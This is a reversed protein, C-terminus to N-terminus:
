KHFTQKLLSVTEPRMVSVSSDSLVCSDDLDDWPKTDIYVFGKKKAFTTNLGFLVPHLWAFLNGSHTTFSVAIALNLMKQAQM